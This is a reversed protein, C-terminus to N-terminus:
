MESDKQDLVSRITNAVHRFVLPKMLFRRIGLTKAKKESMAHSFGIYLTEM